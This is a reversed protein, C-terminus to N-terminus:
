DVEWEEIPVIDRPVIDIRKCTDYPKILMDYSLQIYFRFGYVKKLETNPPYCYLLRGTESIFYDDEELYWKAYDLPNRSM